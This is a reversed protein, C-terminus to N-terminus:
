RIASHFREALSVIDNHRALVNTWESPIQKEGYLVGAMAGTVCGTTDTDGGLNVAKLVAESFSNTTLLCWLSAELTHLVYGTSQIESGDVDQINGSLVRNFMKLESLEFGQRTAFDTVQEVVKQYTSLKEDNKALAILMKSFIYCSFISRFHGHTISSIEKVRNYLTEDTESAFYLAAPAIRMLSGNGNSDVEVEGATLPDEGKKIRMLAIRTTIGIDFVKHHAGWYGTTLWDVMKLGIDIPHYGNVMSEALCFTLSSDDSWTGALQRWTGNERMGVVPNEQLIKRDKFEVPVGLADGVALGLFCSRIKETTM